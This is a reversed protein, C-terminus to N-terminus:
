KQKMWIFHVFMYKNPTTNWDFMVDDQVQGMTFSGGEVAVMGLPIEQGALAGGKFYNGFKPNNFTWGTLKSNGSNSKSGCSALVLMSLM